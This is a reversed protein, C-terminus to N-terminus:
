LAQLVELRLDAGPGTTLFHRRRLRMPRLEGAVHDREVPREVRVAEGLFLVLDDVLRLLDEAVLRDADAWRTDAHRHLDGVALRYRDLELARHADLLRLGGQLPGRPDDEHIFEPVLERLRDVGGPGIVIVYAAHALVGRM